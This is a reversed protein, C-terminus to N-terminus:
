PAATASRSIPAPMPLNAPPSPGDAPAGPPLALPGPDESHESCGALLPCPSQPGGCPGCRRHFCAMLDEYCNRTAVYVRDGAMIQYNTSTDGLQVIENYCIPLVVRCSHPPTPRSLIINRRSAASTLGGAAILADLVHERGKLQFAGPANVEGLVYYVKSDRTVLRATIKGADPTKARILV